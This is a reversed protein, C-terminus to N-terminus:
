CAWAGGAFAVGVAAAARIANTEKLAPWLRLSTTVPPVGGDDAVHEGPVFYGSDSCGQM